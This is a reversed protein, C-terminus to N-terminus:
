KHICQNAINERAGRNGGVRVNEASGVDRILAINGSGM